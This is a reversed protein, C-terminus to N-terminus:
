QDPRAINRYGIPTPLMFRTLAIPRHGRCLIVPTLTLLSATHSGSPSLFCSIWPMGDSSRCSAQPLQFKSGTLGVKNMQAIMSTLTNHMDQTVKNNDQLHWKGEEWGTPPM